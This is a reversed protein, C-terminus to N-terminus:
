EKSEPGGTFVIRSDKKAIYQDWGFGLELFKNQKWLKQQNSYHPDLPWGSNGTDIIFKNVPKAWDIVTRFAPGSVVKFSDDSYINYRAKWVSDIGGGVPICPLNMFSLIEKGGFPHKACLQHKQGWKWTKYDPGLENKLAVISEKWSDLLVKEFPSKKVESTYKRIFWIPHNAQEVWHDLYQTVRPDEKFLKITIASFREDFLNDVIKKLFTSFVLAEKKDKDAVGNWHVLDNLIIREDQNLGGAKILKKELLFRYQEFRLLKQDNQIHIMDETTYKKEERLMSAIHRYRYDPVGDHYIPTYYKHPQRFRNNGNILKSNSDGYLIPMKELPVKDFPLNNIKYSLQPFVGTQKKREPLYGNTFIALEGKKTAVGINTSPSEVAYLNKQLEEISYSQNIDWMKGVMGALDPRKWRVTLLPFSTGVRNPYFDNLIRGHCTSRVRKSVPDQGARGILVEEEKIACSGNKTRITTNQKNPIEVKLDMSDIFSITQGFSLNKNQGAIGFPIGAMTIGIFEKEKLLYHQLYFIGPLRHRLHPDNSFLVSNSATLNQGLVWINSAGSIPTFDSAIEYRNHQYALRRQKKWNNLYEVLERDIEPNHEYIQESENQEDSAKYNFPSLPLIEKLEKEGRDLFLSLRILEKKWNFSLSWSQFVMVFYADQPQWPSPQRKLLRYEFPTYRKLAQNVGATYANLRNREEKSIKDFEREVHGKLDWFRLSLDLDVSSQGGIIQEGLFESIRGQAAHRILDMQFFRHRAHNFGLGFLLDQENEAKIHPIGNQDIIMDLKGQISKNMLELNENQPYDPSLQYSIINYVPYKVLIFTLAIVFLSCLIFLPKKLFTKM